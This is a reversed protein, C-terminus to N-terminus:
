SSGYTGQKAHKPRIIAGINIVASDDSTPIELAVLNNLHARTQM